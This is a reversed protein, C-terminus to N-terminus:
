SLTLFAVGTQNNEFDFWNKSRICTFRILLVKYRHGELCAENLFWGQKKEPLNDFDRGVEATSQWIMKQM